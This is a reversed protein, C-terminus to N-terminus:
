LLVKHCRDPQSDDPQSAHASRVRFPDHGALHRAAFQGRHAVRALGTGHGLSVTLRPTEFQRGYLTCRLTLSGSVPDDGKKSVRIGTIADLPIGPVFDLSSLGQAVAYTSDAATIGPRELQVSGADIGDFDIGVLLAEEPLRADAAGPRLIPSGILYM